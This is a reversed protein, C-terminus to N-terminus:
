IDYQIILYNITSAALISSGRYATSIYPSTQATLKVTGVLTGVFVSTAAPGGQVHNALGIVAPPVGSLVAIAMTAVVLSCYGFLAQRYRGSGKTTASHQGLRLKPPTVKLSSHRSKKL